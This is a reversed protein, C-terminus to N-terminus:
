SASIATVLKSLIAENQTVAAGDFLVQVVTGGTLLYADCATGGTERVLPCTEQAFSAGAVAIPQYSSDATISDSPETPKFGPFAWSAGALLSVYIIGHGVNGSTEQWSCTSYTEAFQPVQFAGPTVVNNDRVITLGPDTFITQVQTTSASSTCFAPAKAPSGIWARKAHGAARLKTAVTGLASRMTASAGAEAVPNAENLRISVWYSGLLMEARCDPGLGGSNQSVDTVCWYGSRDGASNEVPATHQEFTSAMDAAFFKDFSASADPAIEVSLRAAYSMNDGTGAGDWRCELLGFQRAALAELYSPATSEDADIPAPAGTLAQVETTSFLDGCNLPV